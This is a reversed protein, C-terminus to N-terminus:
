NRKLTAASLFTRAGALPGGIILAYVPFILALNAFVFGCISFIGEYVPFILGYVGNSSEYGGFIGEYVVIILM